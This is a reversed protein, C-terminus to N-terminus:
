TVAFFRAFFLSLPLLLLVILVPLINGSISVCAADMVILSLVGAKVSKGINPGSPKKIALILPKFILFLFLAIVPLTIPISSMTGAVYLQGAAVIFYLFGAFYLVLTKGGHVEGRSIMTIAAIYILPFAALLYWESLMASIISIGLLLNLGRCLGMNVPGLVPHHKGIWNYLLALFAISIALFGSTSNVQFASIIGTLFLIIGFVTASRLSVKGSPIAREPREEADLKADFVDNFVIGGAYLGATALCLFLINNGYDQWNLAGALAIGALIDAIATIVNAPRILQFYTKIM